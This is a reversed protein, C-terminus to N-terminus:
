CCALRFAARQLEAATSGAPHRKLPWPCHTSMGCSESSCASCLATLLLFAQTLCYGVCALVRATAPAELGQPASLLLM